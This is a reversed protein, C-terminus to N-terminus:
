HKESQPQIQKFGAPVEFHSSDVSASSFNSVATQSEMLVAATAPPPQNSDQAPPPTDQQKKHFGGFPLHSNLASVASQKGIETASPMAPSNNAPLPAESAAPLPKGDATAGMRMIQMIPVGEIKQMEKGMDALAQGAGPNQLLMKSIDMGLGSNMIDMKQAMRIHFDRLESYGPIEPVLWMDNTIAMAGATQQSKQDTANMMLTMITENADLGSIQKAAGTKRVHVDFSMKVDQANPNAPPPTKAAQEAQKKKMEERAREMQEKIQQFTMVTYTHKILDINTITENDLDIIEISDRSVDAMRNGKLYITSVVPENAKRAQSSFAGMMKMMTVISGGTIQTTQQYTFDAFLSNPIALTFALVVPLSKHSRFMRM